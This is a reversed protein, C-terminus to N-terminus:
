IGVERAVPDSSTVKGPMIETEEMALIWQVSYDFLKIKQTGTSWSFALEKHQMGTLIVSHCYGSARVGTSASSTHLQGETKRQGEASLSYSGLPGILAVRALAASQKRALM